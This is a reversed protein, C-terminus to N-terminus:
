PSRRPWIGADIRRRLDIMARSMRIREPLLDWEARAAAFAARADDRRGALALIEARRTLDTEKRPAHALMRDLRALADDWRRARVLSEIGSQELVALSGLRALGDDSAELAANDNGARALAQAQGLYYEVRPEASVRIANAYDAAAAPYLGRRTRLDARQALAVESDPRAALYHGLAAEADALLGRDVALRSRALEVDVGRPDLRRANEFDEQAAQWDRHMRHLEGRKVYLAANGPERGISRTLGALQDNLLGHASANGVTLVIILLARLM